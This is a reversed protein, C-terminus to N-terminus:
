NKIDTHDFGLRMVASGHLRRPGEPPPLYGNKKKAYNGTGLNKLATQRGNVFINGAQNGTLKGNGAQDNGNGYIGDVPRYTSSNVSDILDGKQDLKTIKSKARTGELGSLYAQYYFGAKIESGISNGIVSVHGFDTASVIAASTLATGPRSVYYTSNTRQLQMYDPDQPTQQIVDAPGAAFNHIVNGIVVGGLLNYAPYGYESVPTGLKAPPIPTVGNPNGLGRNFTVRDIPGNVNIAVGDANGGFKATGLKKLGAFASRVPPEGRAFSTNRATGAVKIHGIATARVASIGGTIKPRGVKKRLSKTM